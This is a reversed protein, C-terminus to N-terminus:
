VVNETWHDQIDVPQKITTEQLSVKLNGAATLSDPLKDKIAKLITNTLENASIDGSTLERRIEEKIIKRLEDINRLRVM